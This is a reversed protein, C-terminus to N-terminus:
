PANRATRWPRIRAAKNSGETGGARAAGGGPRQDPARGKVFGGQQGVYADRSYAAESAPQHHSVLWVSGAHANKSSFVAAM